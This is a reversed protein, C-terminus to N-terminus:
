RGFYTNLTAPLLVLLHRSFILFAVIEFYLNEMFEKLIRYVCAHVYVHFIAIYIIKNSIFKHIISRKIKKYIM